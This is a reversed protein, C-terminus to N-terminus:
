KLNTVSHMCKMRRKCKNTFHVPTCSGYLRVRSTWDILHEWSNIACTNLTM